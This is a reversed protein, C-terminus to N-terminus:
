RELEHLRINSFLAHADSGRLDDDNILVVYQFDGTFFEGISIRYHQSGSGIYTEFQRLSTQQTGYFQIAHEVSVNLDTDLGIAHVEGQRDSRFDFELVTNPTVSYSFDIAKWRNGTIEIDAGDASVFMGGPSDQPGGYSQLRVNQLDLVGDETATQPVSVPQEGDHLRINRFVAHANAERVDHDNILVLYRFDGTFFEGIPIRYHQSGAGAYTAFQRLSTQQTGYIQFAHEISVNLDSDFGVGHVEGQQNSQFDFELVTNATVTYPLEIAKWRNGTIQIGAGDPTVVTGGPSDQPGGYSQLRVNQLDLVGDETATQPVSVPQEGDHLRINRFVAHANAERVDHDNILVLYRFDGTFFEGVPIRYHQSGAGTYTAFQRLSTQQTGYIQFAHEISVNLDSDFGVGHVEGQQNSQFDFELVTNATVTYPLEIAKWRNGTIEFATGNPSVATGGASDQDGGYSLIRVSRLDVVDNFLDDGGGGDIVDVGLGGILRESLAGGLLTDDGLGGYAAKILEPVRSGGAVSTPLRLLDNGDGGSLHLRMYPDRVATTDVVDDDDGGALTLAFGSALATPFDTGFGQLDDTSFRDSGAGGTVTSREFNVASVTEANIDIELRDGPSRLRLTDDLRTATVHIADEGIGGDLQDPGDGSEWRVLDDGVGGDIQDIGAQGALRDKGSGGELVDNGAAGELTDDGERGTLRDDGAGGDLLDPGHTGFLLDDGGQGYLSDGDLESVIAVGPAAVTIAPLGGVESVTDIIQGTRNRVDSVARRDVADREWYRAGVTALVADLVASAPLVDIEALRQRMWEDPPASVEPNHAGPVVRGRISGVGRRYSVDWDAAEPNSITARSTFLPTTRGSNPRMVTDADLFHNDQLFVETGAQVGSQVELLGISGTTDGGPIVLNGIAAVHSQNGAMLARTAPNYVISNVLLGSTGGEAPTGYAFKPGRKILNTFVSRVVTVEQSGKGVLLGHAHDTANLPEAFLVQDFTVNRSGDWVEALEDLSWSLSVNQILVDSSRFISLADENVIGGGRIKVHRITINSADRVLVRGGLITIGPSPATDGAIEINSHEITMVHNLGSASASRLDITGAVDFVIRRNGESLAENLSGPGVPDLTTVHVTRLERDRDGLVDDGDGGQLLDQGTNGILTDNRSGGLLTDNGEGGDAHSPIATFNEFRDDGAHGLFVIQTVAATPWTSEATNFVVRIMAADTTEVIAVDNSSTGEIALLGTAENFNVALLAREELQEISSRSALRRRRSVAHKGTMGDHRLGTNWLETM